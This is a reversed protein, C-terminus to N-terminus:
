FQALTFMGANSTRGDVQLTVLTPGPPLGAPIIADVQYLGAYLPALGSFRV